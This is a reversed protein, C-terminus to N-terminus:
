MELVRQLAQRYPMPVSELQRGEGRIAQAFSHHAARVLPDAGDAPSLSELQAAAREPDGETLTVLALLYGALARNRRDAALDRQAELLFERAAGPEDLRLHAVALVMRASGLWAPNHHRAWRGFSSMGRELATDVDDNALAIWALSTECLTCAGELDTDTALRLTEELTASAHDLEGALMAIRGEHMLLAVQTRRSLANRLQRAQDLTVRAAELQMTDALVVALKALASAALTRGGARIGAEHADRLAAEATALDGASYSVEGVAIHHVAFCRDDDGLLDKAASLERGAGEADGGHQLFLARIGRARVKDFRSAAPSGLVREADPLVTDRRQHLGVDARSSRLRVEARSGAVVHSMAEDLFAAHADPSGYRTLLADHALFWAETDPAAGCALVQQFGALVDEDGLLEPDQTEHELVSTARAAAWHGALARAEDWAGPPALRHVQARVARYMRLGGDARVPALWCRAHLEELDAVLPRGLIAELVVLPSEGGLCALMVLARRQHHDLPAWHPRLDVSCHPLEPPEANLRDAAAKPGLLPVSRILTEMVCPMGESAEALRRLEASTPMPDVLQDELRQELIAASAARSLHSVHLAPGPWGCSSSAGLRVTVEPRAAISAAITQSVTDLQDIVLTSGSPAQRVTELLTEKPTMRANVWLVGAAPPYAAALLTSKGIGPLGAVLAAPGQRALWALERDRGVPILAPVAGKTIQVLRYGHGHVTRVFTPNSPNEEIKTRLRHVTTDLTRSVVNPRYGWVQEYLEERSVDQNPRAALYILIQYEKKALPVESGDRLVKRLALDVVITGFRLTSM